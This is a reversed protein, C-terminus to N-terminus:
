ILNWYKSTNEGHYKVCKSRTAWFYYRFYGMHFQTKDDGRVVTLFEPPDYFYRWHILYNPKKGASNRKKSRGALVDFPGVLQLGLTKKFADAVFFSKYTFLAHTCSSGILKNQKLISWNILFLSQRSGCYGHICSTLEHTSKIPQLHM